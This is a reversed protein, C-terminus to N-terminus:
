RLDLSAKLVPRIPRRQSWKRGWVLPQMELKFAKCNLPFHERCQLMEYSSLSPKNEDEYKM